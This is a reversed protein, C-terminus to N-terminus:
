YCGKTGCAVLSIVISAVFVIGIGAFIHTAKGTHHEMQKISKVQAFAVTRPKLQSGEAIQIVFGDAAIESMRGRLREKPKNLRVEVSAGQGIQVVQEQITPGSANQGLAEQTLLLCLLVVIANKM